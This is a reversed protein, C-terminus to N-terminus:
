DLSHAYRRMELRTPLRKRSWQVVWSTRVKKASGARLTLLRSTSTSRAEMRGTAQHPHIRIGPTLKPKMDHACCQTLTASSHTIIYLVFHYHDLVNSSSEFAAAASERPSGLHTRYSVFSFCCFTAWSRPCWEWSPAVGTLMAGPCGSLSMGLLRIMTQAPPVFTTSSLACSSVLSFTPIQM